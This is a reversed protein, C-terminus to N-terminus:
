FIDSDGGLMVITLSTYSIDILLFLYRRKISELKRFLDAFQIWTLIFFSINMSYFFSINIDIQESKMGIYCFCFAFTHLIVRILFTKFEDATKVQAFRYAQM